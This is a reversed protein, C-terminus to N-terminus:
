RLKIPIGEYDRGRERERERERERHTHTHTNDYSHKAEDIRVIMGGKVSQTTILRLMIVLRNQMQATPNDFFVNRLQFLDLVQRRRELGVAVALADMIMMMMMMMMTM